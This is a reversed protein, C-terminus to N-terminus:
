SSVFVKRDPNDPKRAKVVFTTPMIEARRVSYWNDNNRHKNMAVQYNIEGEVLRELQLGTEVLTNIFTSLTRKQMLIAAGDALRKQYQVEVTYSEQFMIQNDKITLCSYVPHEDSFILCGGPKLYTAILKLTRALDSTYILAFISIVLDFYSEPIGPNLEMPSEFLHVASGYKELREQARALQASSVDLGWVEAAGREALYLLSDGGGCGIELATIGTVSDLLRLTEDTPALPGFNPLAIGGDYLLAAGEWGTRNFDLNSDKTEQISDPTVVANSQGALCGPTTYEKIADLVISTYNLNGDQNRKDYRKSRHIMGAQPDWDRYHFHGEEDFFEYLIVQFGASELTAKLTKYTYLVKHDDAGPGTGGVKVWEIYRPSPHLGDPVAIRIYGGPKLYRFCMKAAVVSDEISIHEWVHEALMADISNLEFFSEWDTSKLLNLFEIETPIWGSDHKGEAGIVIRKKLNTILERRLRQGGLIANRYM